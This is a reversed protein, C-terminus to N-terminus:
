DPMSVDPAGADTPSTPVCTSQGAGTVSIPANGLMTTTMTAVDYSYV